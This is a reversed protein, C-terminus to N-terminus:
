LEIGLSETLISDGAKPKALAKVRGARMDGSLLFKHRMAKMSLIIQEINDRTLELPDRNFLENLDNSSLPDSM